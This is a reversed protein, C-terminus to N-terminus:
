TGVKSYHSIKLDRISLNRNLSDEVHRKTKEFIEVGTSTSIWEHFDKILAKKELNVFQVACLDLTIQLVRSSFNDIDDEVLNEESYVYVRTLGIKFQDYEYVKLQTSNM